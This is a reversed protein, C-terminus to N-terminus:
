PANNAGKQNANLIASTIESCAREAMARDPYDCNGMLIHVLEHVVSWELLMIETCAELNVSIIANLYEWNIWVKMAADPSNFEGKAEYYDEYYNVEFYYGLDTVLYAWKKYLNQIRTKLEKKELETSM